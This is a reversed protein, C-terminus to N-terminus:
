NKAVGEFYLRRRRYFFVIGLIFGGVLAAAAAPEPIPTPQIDLVFSDTSWEWTYIGSSVGLSDLSSAAYLNNTILSNGSVYDDFLRLFSSNVAVLEGSGSTASTFGGPGFPGPTSTFGSYFDINGGALSGVRITQNEPYLGRPNSTFSGSLTLGSIDLTGSGTAVVDTGVESLTVTFVAHASQSIGFLLAIILPVTKFSKM